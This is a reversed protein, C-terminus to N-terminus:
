SIEVVKAKCDEGCKSCIFFGEMVEEVEEEAIVTSFDDTKCNPCPVRLERRGYAINNIRDLASGFIDFNKRLWQSNYLYNAEFNKSPKFEKKFQELVKKIKEIKVVADM